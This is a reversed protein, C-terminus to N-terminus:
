NFPLPLINLFEVGTVKTMRAAEIANTSLLLILITPPTNELIPSPHGYKGSM